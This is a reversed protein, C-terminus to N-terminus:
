PVIIQKCDFKIVLMVEYLNCMKTEPGLTSCTVHTVKYLNARRFRDIILDDHIIQCLKKNSFGINIFSTPNPIPSM